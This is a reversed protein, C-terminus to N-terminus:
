HKEDCDMSCREREREGEFMALLRRNSEVEAAASAQATGGTAGGKAKGYCVEDQLFKGHIKEVAYNKCLQEFGSPDLNESRFMHVDLSAPPRVSPPDSNALSTKSRGVHSRSSYPRTWGRHVM